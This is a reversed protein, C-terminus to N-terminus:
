LMIPQPQSCNLDLCWKIVCPYWRIQQLDGVRAARLQQEWFFRQFTGGAFNKHMNTNNEEMINILDRNSTDDLVIGRLVINEELKKEFKSVQRKKLLIYKM